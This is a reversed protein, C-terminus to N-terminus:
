VHLRKAAPRCRSFARVVEFLDGSVQLQAAELGRLWAEDGQASRALLPFLDALRIAIDPGPSDESVEEACGTFLRLRAQDMRNEETDHPASGGARGDDSGRKLRGFAAELALSVSEGERFGNRGSAAGWPEALRRGPFCGLPATELRSSSKRSSGRVSAARPHNRHKRAVGHDTRDSVIKRAHGVKDDHILSEGDWHLSFLVINDGPLRFDYSHAGFM